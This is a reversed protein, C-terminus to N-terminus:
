HGWVTLSNLRARPKSLRAWSVGQRCAFFCICYLVAFVCMSMTDHKVLLSFVHKVSFKSLRAMLEWLRACRLQKQYSCQMAMQAALTARFFLPQLRGKLSVENGEADLTSPNQIVVAQPRKEASGELARAQPALGPGVPTVHNCVACKVSQAGHAYM